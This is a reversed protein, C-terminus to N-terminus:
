YVQSNFGLGGMYGEVVQTLGMCNELIKLIYIFLLM